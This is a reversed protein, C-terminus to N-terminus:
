PRHGKRDSGLTPVSPQLAPFPTSRQSMSPLKPRRTTAVDAMQSGVQGCAYPEGQM